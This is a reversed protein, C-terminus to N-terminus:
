TMVFKRTHIGGIFMLTGVVVHIIHDVPELVMANPIVTLVLDPSLRAAFGAIGLMLYFLGAIVCFTRAGRFTATTGFYYAMAATFLHIVNEAFSWNGGLLHPLAIGIIGAVGLIVAAIKSIKKAMTGYRENFDKM